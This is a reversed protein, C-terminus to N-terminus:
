NILVRHQARRKLENGTHGLDIKTTDPRSGQLFFQRPAAVLGVGRPFLFNTKPGPVVSGNPRPRAM